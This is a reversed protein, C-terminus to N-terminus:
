ERNLKDTLLPSSKFLVAWKAGPPFTQNNRSQRGRKGAHSNVSFKGFGSILIDEGSELTSKFIEFLTAVVTTAKKRSLGEITTVGDIIEVKTLKM